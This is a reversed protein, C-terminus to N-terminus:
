EVKSFEATFEPMTICTYDEEGMTGVCDDATGPQYTGGDPDKKTMSVDAGYSITGELDYSVKVVVSNGEELDIPPDFKVFMENKVWTFEGEADNADFSWFANPDEKHTEVRFSIGAYRLTMKATEGENVQGMHIKRKQSNLEKNVVKTGEALNITDNAVKSVEMVNGNSEWSDKQHACGNIDSDGIVPNEQGSAAAEADIEEDTRRCDPNIYIFGGGGVSMSTEADIDEIVNIHLVIIELSSPTGTSETLALNTTANEVEVDFVAEASRKEENKCSFQVSLLILLAIWKRM